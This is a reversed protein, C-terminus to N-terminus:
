IFHFTCSDDKVTEVGGSNSVDTYGRHAYMGFRGISSENFTYSFLFLLHEKDRISGM